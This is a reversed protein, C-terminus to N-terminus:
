PITSKAGEALFGKAPLCRAGVLVLSPIISDESVWENPHHHLCVSSFTKASLVARATEAGSNHARHSMTSSARPLMRRGPRHAGHFRACCRRPPATAGARPSKGDFGNAVNGCPPRAPKEASM